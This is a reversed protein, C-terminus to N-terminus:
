KLPSSQVTSDAHVKVRKAEEQVTSPVHEKTVESIIINEINHSIKFELHPSPGVILLPLPFSRVTRDNYVRLSGM